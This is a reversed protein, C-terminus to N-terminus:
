EDANARVAVGLPSRCIAPKPRPSLGVMERAEDLTIIGAQLLMPAMSARDAKRDAAEKAQAFGEAFGANYVAKAQESATMMM